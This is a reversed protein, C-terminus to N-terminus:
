GRLRKDRPLQYKVMVRGAVGAFARDVGRALPGTAARPPATATATARIARAALQEVAGLARSRGPAVDFGVSRTVVVEGGAVVAAPVEDLEDLEEVAGGVLADGTM